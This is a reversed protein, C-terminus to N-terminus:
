GCLLVWLPGQQNGSCDDEIPLSQEKPVYIPDGTCDLALGPSVTVMMKGCQGQVKVCLGCVVGCGFFSRFLLRSLDRTYDSLQELDDHQRRMGPGFKPRVLTSFGKVSSVTPNNGNM